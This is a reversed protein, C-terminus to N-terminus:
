NIDKSSLALYTNIKNFIIFAILLQNTKVNKLKRGPIIKETQHYLM